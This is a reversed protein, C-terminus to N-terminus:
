VLVFDFFARRSRGRFILPLGLQQSKVAFRQLGTVAGTFPALSAKEDAATSVLAANLVQPTCIGRSLACPHQEVYQLRLRHRLYM